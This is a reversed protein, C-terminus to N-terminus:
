EPPKKHSGWGHFCKTFRKSEKNKLTLCLKRPRDPQKVRMHQIYVHASKYALKIEVESCKAGLWLFVQEGNDLIMIDDDALDDQCFDSCKESVIFYGKENSCRFLRTHEMFGADTEYPKKGGLGVWFFNDPEEGEALVQLSVWPSNFMEEAIDQILHAEDPDAKSGVWVYVIGSDDEQDFPVNLIYCFQSNLAAADPKIQLLRSYLASGNSRLHYFEVANKNTQKRKGQHIILKRKFHAMFKMNEQQQHTRVVELKDRFLVQFKKQLTFTFTLWGMNSAERGQWFYVVCQFDEELPEGEETDDAPIWYRCLFVYCDMSYFHGLEEEPLRIFKKGELVFAEMAELDENWDEMLQQAEALPMPPQRPMFLATLDTKAEQRLAWKTLDAGTKQVSEATRTFDVAIVEDWGIFKLKFVQPETGERVRTVLAYDPRDIM